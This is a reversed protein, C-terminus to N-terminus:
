INWKSEEEAYMAEEADIGARIAEPFVGDLAMRLAQLNFFLQWCGPPALEPDELLQEVTGQMQNVVGQMLKVDDRLDLFPFYDTM